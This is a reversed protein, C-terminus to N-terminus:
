VVVSDPLAIVFTCRSGPQPLTSQSNHSPSPAARDGDWTAIGSCGPGGQHVKIVQAKCSSSAGNALSSTSLEASAVVCHTQLLPQPVPGQKLRVGTQVDAM